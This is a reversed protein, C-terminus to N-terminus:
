RFLPRGIGGLNMSRNSMTSEVASRQAHLEAFGVMLPPLLVGGAAGDMEVAAAGFPATMTLRIPGVVLALM